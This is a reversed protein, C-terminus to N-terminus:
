IVLEIKKGTMQRISVCGPADAAEARYRFEHAVGVFIDDQFAHRPAIAATVARPLKRITACSFIRGTAESDSVVRLQRWRTENHRGSSLQPISSRV